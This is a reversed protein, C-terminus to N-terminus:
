ASEHNDGIGAGFAADVVDKAWSMYKQMENESPAHAALTFAAAEYDPEVPVFHMLHDEFNRCTNDCRLEYLTPQDSM